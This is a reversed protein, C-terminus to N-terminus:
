FYRLRWIFGVEHTFFLPAYTHFQGVQMVHDTGNEHERVKAYVQQDGDLDAADIANIRTMGNIGSTFYISYKSQRDWSSIHSLNIELGLSARSTFGVRFRYDTNDYILSRTHYHGSSGFIDVRRGHGGLGLYFKGFPNFVKRKQIPYYSLGMMWTFFGTSLNMKVPKSPDDDIWRESGNKDFPSGYLLTLKMSFFTTPYEDRSELTIEWGNFNKTNQFPQNRISAHVYNINFDPLQAFNYEALFLLAFFLSKYFSLKFM